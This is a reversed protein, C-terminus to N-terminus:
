LFTKCGNQGGLYYMNGKFKVLSLVYVNLFPQNNKITLTVNDNQLVATVNVKYQINITMLFYIFKKLKLYPIFLNFLCTLDVKTFIKAAKASAKAQTAAM